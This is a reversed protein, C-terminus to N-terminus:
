SSNKSCRSRGQQRIPPTSMAYSSSICRYLPTSAVNLSVRAARARLLMCLPMIISGSVRGKPVGHRGLPPMIGTGVVIFVLPASKHQPFEAELVSQVREGYEMTYSCVPTRESGRVVNLTYSPVSVPPARTKPDATHQPLHTSHSASALPYLSRSHMGFNVHPADHLDIKPNDNALFQADAAADIPRQLVCVCACAISCSHYMSCCVHLVCGHPVEGISVTAYMPQNQASLRPLYAVYRVTQRVASRHGVMTGFFDVSGPAPMRVFQLKARYSYVAHSGFQDFM